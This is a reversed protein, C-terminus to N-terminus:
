WVDEKVLARFSRWDFLRLILLSKQMVVSFNTKVSFSEMMDINENFMMYNLSMKEDYFDYRYHFATVSEGSFTTRQAVKAPLCLMECSFSGSM